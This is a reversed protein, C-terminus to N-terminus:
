CSDRHIPIAALVDRGTIFLWVSFNCIWHSQLPKM